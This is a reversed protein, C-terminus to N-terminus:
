APLGADGPFDISSLNIEHMVAPRSSKPPRNIKM